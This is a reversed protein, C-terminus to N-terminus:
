LGSATPGTALGVAIKDMPVDSFISFVSESPDKTYEIFSPMLSLRVVHGSDAGSTPYGYEDLAILSHGRLKGLFPIPSDYPETFHNFSFSFNLQGDGGISDDEFQEPDWHYTIGQIAVSSRTSAFVGLISPFLIKLKPIFTPDIHIHVDSETHLHKVRQALWINAMLDGFGGRTDNPTFFNYRVPAGSLSAHLCELAMFFVSLFLVINKRM